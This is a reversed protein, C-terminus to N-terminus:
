FYSTFGWLTKTYLTNAETMQSHTFARDPIYLFTLGSFSGTSFFNSLILPYIGYSLINLANYPFEDTILGTM